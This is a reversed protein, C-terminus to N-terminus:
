RAVKELLVYGARSAPWEGRGVVRYRQRIAPTLARWGQGEFLASSQLTLGDYYASSMRQAFGAYAPENGLELEAASSLVDRPVTRMGADIYAATSSTWFSLQRAQGAKLWDVQRAHMDVLRARVTSTLPEFRPTALLLLALTISALQQSSFAGAATGERTSSSREDSLVCVVIVVFGGIALPLLSNERGGHKVFALLSTVGFGATLLAVRTAARAVSGGPFQWCRAALVLLSLLWVKGSATAPISWARAWEMPHSAQLRIAYRSFQGLTADFLPITGLALVGALGLLLLRKGDRQWAFAAVLGLGVGAGTLKFATALVPVAVLAVARRRDLQADDLVLWIAAGFCVMMAHDPHVHPALLSSCVVGLTTAALLWRAQPSLRASLHPRLALLLTATTALQWGLGLLRHALLSLELGFPRLLTYQLLELGPSYSYSNVLDPPGYFVEGARLKLLNVLLPRESWVLMDTPLRVVSGIWLGRLGLWGVLSSALVLPALRERRWGLASAGGSSSWSAAGAALVVVALLTLAQRARDSPTGGLAIGARLAHRADADLVSMLGLLLLPFLVGIGAALRLVLSRERRAPLLALLGLLALSAGLWATTDLLALAGLLGGGLTACAISYFGSCALWCAIAAVVVLWANPGSPLLEVALVGLLLAWATRGAM